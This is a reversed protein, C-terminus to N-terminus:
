PERGVHITYSDLAAGNIDNGSWHTLGLSESEVSWTQHFSTMRDVQKTDESPKGFKESYYREVERATGGDIDCSASVVQGDKLSFTVAKSKDCYVGRIFVVAIPSPESVCMFDGMFDQCKLEPIYKELTAQNAGRPYRVVDGAFPIQDIMPITDNSATLDEDEGAKPKVQELPKVSNLPKIINYMAVSQDYNFEKNDKFKVGQLHITEGEKIWCGSAIQKKEKSSYFFFYFNAFHANAQGVCNSAEPATDHLDVRLASINLILEESSTAIVQASVSGSLALLTVALMKNIVM